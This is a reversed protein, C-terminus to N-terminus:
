VQARPTLDLKLILFHKENRQSRYFEVAHQCVTSSYYLLQM